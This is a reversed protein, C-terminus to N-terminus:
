EASEKAKAKTGNRRGNCETAPKLRHGLLCLCVDCVCVCVATGPWLLLSLLSGVSLSLSLSLALSPSFSLCISPCESGAASPSKQTRQMRTKPGLTLQRACALSKLDFLLLLLLLRRLLSLLLSFSLERLSFTLEPGRNMHLDIELSM